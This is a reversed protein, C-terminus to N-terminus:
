DPDAFKSRAAALASADATYVTCRGDEYAKV